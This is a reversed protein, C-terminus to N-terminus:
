HARERAAKAAASTDIVSGRLGMDQWVRGACNPCLIYCEEVDTDYLWEPVEDEYEVFTGCDDCLMALYFRRTM